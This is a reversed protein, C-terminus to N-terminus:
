TLYEIYVNDGAALVGDLGLGNWSLINGSTVFDIGTIQVPGNGVGFIVNNNNNPTHALSLAKAIAEGSTIQRYEISVGSPTVWHARGDGNTNTLVSGAIGETGDIYVLQGRNGAGATTGTAVTFDGTDHTNAPNTIAGTQFTVQGTGLGTAGTVNGTNFYLVGSDTTTAAGTNMSIDGSTAVTTDATNLYLSGAPASITGPFTAALTVGNGTQFISAIKNVFNDYINLINTYVKAWPDTPAGIDYTSATMPYLNQNISTSTLNSLSQNAYALSPIDAAVLTRFTAIASGGSTPGALVTNASAPTEVLITAAAIAAATQGGVTAVNPNPYTGFLDGGAPGTPSGGGGVGSYKAYFNDAM